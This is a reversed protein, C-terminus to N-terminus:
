FGRRVTTEDTDLARRERRGVSTGGADGELSEEITRSELTSEGAGIGSGSVLLFVPTSSVARGLPREASSCYQLAQSSDPCGELCWKGM